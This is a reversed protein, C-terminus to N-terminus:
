EWKQKTKIFIWPSAFTLYFVHLWEYVWMKWFDNKQDLKKYIRMLPSCTFLIKTFHFFLFWKFNGTLLLFFLLFKEMGLSLSFLSIRIKSSFSYFKGMSLHRSKQRWWDQWTTPPVSYVFSEPDTLVEVPFHNAAENIFLDDDGSPLHLHSQFSIKEYVQRHYILNRGVGMYPHDKLAWGLYQVATLLTEQRIMFNLLGRKYFYPSYGLLIGPSSPLRRAISLLWDPGPECDIDTLVLWEHQSSEIGFALAEKKGPRKKQHEHYRIHPHNNLWHLDEPQIYAPGDNVVIVEFDSFSQNDM